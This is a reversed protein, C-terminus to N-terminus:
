AFFRPPSSSPCANLSCEVALAQARYPHRAPVECSQFGMNGFPCHWSGFSFYSDAEDGGDHVTARLHMVATLAQEASNCTTAGGVYVRWRHSDGHATYPVSARIFGCVRRGSASATPAIALMLLVLTTPALRKLMASVM